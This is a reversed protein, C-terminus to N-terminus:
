VGPIRHDHWWRQDGQAGFFNVGVRWVRNEQLDPRKIALPLSDLFIEDTMVSEDSLYIQCLRKAMDRLTPRPLANAVTPSILAIVFAHQRGLFGNRLWVRRSQHIIDRVHGEGKFADADNLICYAIQTKAAMRGFLCPQSQKLWEALTEAQRERSILPNFLVAHASEMDRSFPQEKRLPDAELADFLDSLNEPM